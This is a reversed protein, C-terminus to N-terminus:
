QVFRCSMGREPDFTIRSATFQSCIGGKTGPVCFFASGWLKEFDHGNPRGTPAIFDKSSKREIAVRTTWTWEPRRPGRLGLRKAAGKKARKGGEPFGKERWATRVGRAKTQVSYEGFVSICLRDISLAIRVLARTNKLYPQLPPSKTSKTLPM